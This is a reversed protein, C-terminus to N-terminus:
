RVFWPAAHETLKNCIAWLARPAPDNLPRGIEGLRTLVLAAAQEACERGSTTLSINYMRRDKRSRQRDIWGRVFLSDTAETIAARSVCTNEALALPSSTAPSVALLVVLVGFQLETLGISRLERKVSCRADDSAALMELMAHCRMDDHEQRQRAMGCLAHFVLTDRHLMISHPTGRHVHPLGPRVRAFLLATAPCM